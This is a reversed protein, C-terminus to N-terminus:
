GGHKPLSALVPGGLCALVDDPTRFCADFHDASFALGTSVTGGLLLGILGYSLESRVPLAPTSPEQVISVDLIGARDLANGVRAEERKSVYLLYKEEAAKLSSLLEQQEVARDGLQHAAERYSVLQRNLTAAQSRMGSLQVQAKVLESKVWEHNPDPETTQDRLPLHDESVISNKAEAIQQDVEQVLRYSPEYKTLLETRKLQLELLTAKLKGLLEPNDSNRIQATTREPLSRLQSELMGIRRVTAAMDVDTQRFEGEAQSLKHLTDDRETAASVVGEDRTFNM